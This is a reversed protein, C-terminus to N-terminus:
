LTIDESFESDLTRQFPVTHSNIQGHTIVIM